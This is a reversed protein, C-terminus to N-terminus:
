GLGTTTTSISAGRGPPSGMLYAGSVDLTLVECCHLLAIICVFRSTDLAGTPSWTNKLNPFQKVTECAVLRCKRRNFLGSALYKTAYVIKTHVTRYMAGAQRLTRIDGTSPPELVGFKEAVQMFEDAFRELWGGEGHWNGSAKAEATTEFPAVCLRM